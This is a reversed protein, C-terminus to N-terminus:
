QVVIKKMHVKEGQELKVFYIGQRLESIDLQTKYVGAEMVMDRDFKKVVKGTLDIIRIEPVEINTSSFDLKLYTDAPNPYVKLPDEDGFFYASAQVSGAVFAAAVFLLLARKM